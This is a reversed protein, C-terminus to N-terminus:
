RPIAPSWPLGILYFLIILLNKMCHHFSEATIYPAEKILFSMGLRTYKVTQECDYGKQCPLFNYNMTIKCQLILSFYFCNFFGIMGIKNM